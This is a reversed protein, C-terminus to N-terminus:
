LSILITKDDIVKGTLDRSTAPNRAHVIEGPAGDDLIEVKTTISLAGDQVLADARQGRHLVTRAKVMRALLPAGPPVSEAAELSDSSASIDALPERVNLIDRREQALANVNVPDGPKLQSSAVWVERWVHAHLNAPWTGLTEHETRLSFRVIFSSTIGLSPMELVDLTLPEDPLVLPSWPQALELELQGKDRIYDRQLTETLLGLADSEGFTRARRSIKISDAGTFNTGCAPANSALLGAVQDRTLLLNKGFAPADCLRIAPLPQGSTFIQPLFVGDGGTQATACLQLPSPEDALLTRPSGGGNLFLLFLVAQAALIKKM